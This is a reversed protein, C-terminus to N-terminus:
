RSGMEVLSRIFPGDINRIDDLDFRGEKFWRMKTVAQHEFPSGHSTVYRAVESLEAWNYTDEVAFHSPQRCGDSSFVVKAPDYKPGRYDHEFMSRFSKPRQAPEDEEHDIWKMSSRGHFAIADYARTDLIHPEVGTIMNAYQSPKDENRNCQIPGTFGQSRFADFIRAHLAKEPGENFPEIGASTGALAESVKGAFSWLWDGPSCMVYLAEDDTWRFGNVNHHFPTFRQMPGPKRTSWSYLELFTYVPVIGAKNAIDTAERLAQFYAPNWDTVDWPEHPYAPRNLPILGNNSGPVEPTERWAWANMLGIRTNKCGLEGLVNLFAEIDIQTNVLAGYESCGIGVIKPEPRTLPADGHPTAPDGTVDPWPWPEFEPLNAPYKKGWTWKPGSTNMPAEDILRQRERAIALNRDAWARVDEPTPKM